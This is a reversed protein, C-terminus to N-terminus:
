RRRRTSRPPRSRCHSGGRRVSRCWLDRRVTRAQTAGKAIMGLIISSKSGERAEITPKAPAPKANKAARKIARKDPKGKKAGKKAKPANKKQSAAKTSTAPKPTVQAGQEAVAAAEPTMPAQTEMTRILVATSGRM